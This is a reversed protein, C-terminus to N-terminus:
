GFNNLLNNLCIKNIKASADFVVRVRNPKNINFVGHFPIYNTIFSTSNKEEPSLLKAQGSTIYDNILSKYMNFFDPNKSFRKELSKFRQIAHERNNLLIPFDDKWLLGVHFHGKVFKTTKELLELSRKKNPSILQSEPTTEYSDKQWFQKVNENLSEFTTNLLSICSISNNTIAKSGGVLM